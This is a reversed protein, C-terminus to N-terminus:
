LWCGHSMQKKSYAGKLDVAFGSYVTGYLMTFLFVDTRRITPGVHISTADCTAGQHTVRLEGDPFM